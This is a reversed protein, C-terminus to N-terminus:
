LWTNRGITITGTRVNHYLHQDPETYFHSSDALTVHEAFMAMRALRIDNSCHVVCNWSFINEGDAVLNGAVNLICDRRIEVRDGLRVMGGKLLIRVRDELVSGPGIELVNHSWPEFVVRVGAGIRVDDAIDLRVTAHAWTAALKTRALFARRRLATDAARTRPGAVRAAAVARHAARGLVAM